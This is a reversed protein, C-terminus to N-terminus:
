LKKADFIFSYSDKIDKENPYALLRSQQLINEKGYNYLNEFSFNLDKEIELVQTILKNIFSQGLIKSISFGMSTLMDVMEDFQIISLHFPDHNKGNENIMEYAANPFSLILRGGTPLINYFKQVVDFPKPTHEITEFSIITSPRYQSLHIDKTLDTKLFELNQKTYKHKAINLYKDNIDCGIVYKAKESLLASGYGIACSIDAVIDTNSIVDFAYLYRGCHELKMFFNQPIEDFPNCYENNAYDNIM